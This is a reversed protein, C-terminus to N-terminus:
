DYRYKEVARRYLPKWILENIAVVAAVLTLLAAVMLPYGEQNPLAYGVDIARGIGFLNLSQNPGNNLYEAVILTNWGGGFATISGTILAPFIGPLLVRTFRKWGRLGFSHAAENLDPPLGRIGSLINFFLYWLMGTLLMLVAAGEPSIYPILEFIIVPFLATAPFSAIVEVTPMGFKSAHANRALYLALPVSIALCILYAAVVRLASAGMALPLLEIQHLVSPVIPVSFVHYIAVILAILMLWGIVLVAGIGVYSLATQRRETKSVPRVAIAALQVLPTSIRTVSTVVGRRVYAAVRSFRGSTDTGTIIEGEGSPSTDYRFREAWKGRPRWVAFDLLAILTVLVLIGALFADTNHDSAAFSLFSGIGPLVQNSNTSFIEAEVLFFWGATWSLVSNYILRNITAPFLVRRFLLIGRLQFTDAAERLEGPLTKLSEYVGFVMNWAMSTFILFVSAFNVGPWSGPTLSAFVVLAIPFFGLIPISQLIDLIPIMVREGTRRTAAYYGYALAFGLSLAYAASMRLFSYFVDVAATPLYSTLGGFSLGATAVVFITAFLPLAVYIAASRAASPLRPPDTPAGPTAPSAQDVPRITGGEAM